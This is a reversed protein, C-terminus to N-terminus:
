VRFGFGPSARIGLLAEAKTHGRGRLDATHVSFGFAKIYLSAASGGVGGGGGWGLRLVRGLVRLLGKKM